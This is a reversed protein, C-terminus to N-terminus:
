ARSYRSARSPARKRSPASRRLRSSAAARSTSRLGSHARRRAGSMPKTLVLFSMNILNSKFIFYPLDTQSKIEVDWKVTTGTKKINQKIDELSYPRRDRPLHVFIKGGPALSRGGELVIDKLTGLLFASEDGDLLAPYIPCGVTWIERYKNATLDKWDKYTSDGCEPNVYDVTNAVSPDRLSLRQTGTYKFMEAHEQKCHCAILIM